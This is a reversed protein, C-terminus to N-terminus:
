DKCAEEEGENQSYLDQYAMSYKDIILGIDGMLDSEEYRIVKERYVM